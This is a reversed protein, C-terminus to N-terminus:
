RDGARIPSQALAQRARALHVRVTSARLGMIEAAAKSDFGAYDILVVAARQRPSLAALATDLILRDDVTSEWPQDAVDPVVGPAIKRQARLHSRALNLAVKYVFNRAHDPSEMKHWRVLSRTFAEQAIEEGGSLDRVVLASARAVAGFHRRYFADFEGESVDGM